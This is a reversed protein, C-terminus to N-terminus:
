DLDEPEIVKGDMKINSGHESFNQNSFKISLINTFLATGLFLKQKTNHM